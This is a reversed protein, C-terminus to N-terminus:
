IAFCRFWSWTYQTGVLECFAVVKQGLLLIAM